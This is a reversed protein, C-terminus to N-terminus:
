RRPIEYIRGQDDYRHDITCWGSRGEHRHRGDRQYDYADFPYQSYSRGERGYYGGDRSYSGDNRGYYGGDRSGYRGRSGGRHGSAYGYAEYGDRYGQLYGQRYGRVYEYRSGYSSRYGHDGDRYKRDHTPEYSERHDGDKRGHNLGDEYGKEFGIRGSYAEYGLDGRRGRENIDHADVAAPGALALGMLAVVGPTWNANM